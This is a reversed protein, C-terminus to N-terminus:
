LVVPPEVTVGTEAAWSRGWQYLADLVPRLSNGADTLDYVVHAPRDKVVTRTVLGETELRQLRQTLMKDSIDPVLRQLESFRRPGEKIHTRRV